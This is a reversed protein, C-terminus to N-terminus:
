LKSRMQLVYAGMNLYAAFTLWLIYPIFLYTAIKSISYFRVACVIVMAWMVILWVFAALYAGWNFFMISWMFNMALQLAYIILAMAKAQTNHESEIVFYAALGMMLYLITWAVSFVWAPPSLPPKEMTAYMSMGQRSLAASIGGVLLPIFLAFILTIVSLRRM